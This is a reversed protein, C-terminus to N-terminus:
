GRRSRVTLYVHGMMATLVLLGGHRHIEFLRRQDDTGFVPLMMCTASLLTALGLAAIAWFLMKRGAGFGSEGSSAGPRFRCREAWLVAVVAVAVAFVGGLGVHVLLPYGTLVRGAFGTGVLGTWGLVLVSAALVIYAVAGCRDLARRARSAERPQSDGGPARRGGATALTHAVCAVLTLSLAAISIAGFM